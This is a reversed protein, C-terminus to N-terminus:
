ENGQKPASPIRDLVLKSYGAIDEWHERANPDGAVLRGIKHLIMDVAESQVDNLQKHTPCLRIMSKLGQALGAMVSFDGHTKAKTKVLETINDPM